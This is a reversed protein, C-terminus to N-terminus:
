KSARRDPTGRTRQTKSVVGEEEEEEEVEEETRREIAGVGDRTGGAFGRMVTVSVRSNIYFPNRSVRCPLQGRELKVSENERIGVTSMEGSERLMKIFEEFHLITM